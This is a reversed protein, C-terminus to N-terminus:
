TKDNLHKQVTEVLDQFYKGHYSKTGPNSGFLQAHAEPFQDGWTCNGPASAIRLAEVIKEAPSPEIPSVGLQIILQTICDAKTSSPVVGTIDLVDTLQEQTLTALHGRLREYAWRAETETQAAFITM